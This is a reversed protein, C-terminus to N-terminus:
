EQEEEVVCHVVVAQEAVASCEGMDVRRHVEEATCDLRQGVVVSAAEAPAVALHWGVIVAVIGAKWDRPETGDVVVVEKMCSCSGVRSVVRGVERRSGFSHRVVVATCGARSGFIHADALTLSANM